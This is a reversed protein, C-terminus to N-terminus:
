GEIFSFDGFMRMKRYAGNSAWEKVEIYSDRTDLRWETANDAPAIRLQYLKGKYVPFRFVYTAYVGGSSPINVATQATGDVTVTIPTAVSSVRTIHAIGFHKFNEMGFTSPSIEWAIAQIPASEFTWRPEWIYFLPKSSSNVSWALNLAINRGTRWSTGLPVAIQTRGTHTLSTATYTTGYNNIGPTATVTVGACDSDVMIDGYYKNERPDGQDRSPTRIQCAIATGNDTNGTFQYMLSTGITSDGTLIQRVNTGEDGYHFVVGLSGYEDYFWGNLEPVYVLCAAENSSNLYDFYLYDVCFNLRLREQNTSSINPARVSNVASSTQAETPFLPYLWEDTLSVPTGGDTTYIGDKSLFQIQPGPTRTIAWRAFLGKGNPIEQPEMILTGDPGRGRNFVQFMRETSWVYDRGNYHVGNMLPESPATIDKYNRDSTGESGPETWYLRGPNTTDGCGFWINDEPSMWLCPLPQSVLIPEPIVWPVSTMAGLNEYVELRSTSIVRYLTCTIGNVQLKIGQAWSTSFGTAADNVTTGSVTGTTGSAPVTIVPWPQFKDVGLDPLSAVVDDAFADYLGATITGGASYAGNGVSRDLTFTTAGTRTIQWIGNAATNGTIGSIAVIAGTNLNHAATTTIAIPAANTAANATLSINPVTAIYHWFPVEGGLREIDLIDAESAPASAYAPIAIAALQRRPTVGGRSPPSPNSLAGTQSSRARYRYIYPTGTPEQVDPGYGGGVWIDDIDLNVTATTVLLIRVAAINALTRSNDTGVRILDSIRFVFETWQVDGLDIQGSTSDTVEPQVDVIDRVPSLSIPDFESSTLSEDIIERAVATPGTAVLTQLNRASPTLDNSRFAKYYFNRTFDNTSLDVDFLIKGEAINSPVDARLSVHVYDDPRVQVGSVITSFDIAVTRTITGTGVTVATAMGKATIPEAAAHNVVLYVRFSAVFQTVDTAAFTAVTSCRLSVTGDPGNNVALIRVYETRTSNYLMSNVEAQVVPTTLVISCLGSSGSDYIVSAITTSATTTTSLPHVEQVAAIEAWVVTGALAGFATSDVPISFTTASVKTAVFAGNVGTWGGTAGSVVVRTGSPPAATTTFVVPNANTAASISMNGVVLLAGVGIQAMSAPTVCAWGFTGRDNLIATITTNVRTVLTPNGATGAETWAAQLAANDVYEFDLDPVLGTEAIRTFNYSPAIDLAVDSPPSTPATLGFQHMEGSLRVKKMTTGLTGAPAGSATPASDAVYMWSRPSQDPRYPVLALPNGSFGANVGAYTIQTFPNTKQYALAQGTGVIYTYDAALPDSLRRVSHTPTSGSIVAGLSTLGPRNTIVGGQYSRINKLYPFKAPRVSDVPRNLDLGACDFRQTDRDYKPSAPEAM